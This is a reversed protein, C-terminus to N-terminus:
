RCLTDGKPCKFRVHIHDDHGKAWRIIGTRVRRKAPYQFIRDLEGKDVGTSLAHKYLERQITWDMFIFEIQQTDLLARVFEWSREVDVTKSNVKIFHHGNDRRKAYYSLDVDRGTRHSLHKYLQGALRGSFDGVVVNGIDPNRRRMECISRLMLNFAFPRGYSARSRKIFYGDQTKLKSWDKLYPRIRVLDKPEGIRILVRKGPHMLKRLRRPNRYVHNLRELSKLSKKYKRAIGYLTDGRRIKHYINVSGKPKKPQMVFADLYGACAAGDDTFGFAALNGLDPLEEPMHDDGHGNSGNTGNSGNSGNEAINPDSAKDTVASDTGASNTAANVDAPSAVDHGVETDYAYDGKEAAQALAQRVEAQRDVKQDTKPTKTTKPTPATAEATEKWAKDANDSVSPKVATSGSASTKVTSASKKSVKKKASKKKPTKKKPCRKATKILLRDGPHLSDAKRGNLRQLYDVDVKFKKAIVWLNDGSKVKYITPKGCRRSSNKSVKKTKKKPCSKATKILLRDGPHLSDAKSGNLRQLYDVTVGFRKAIVWLNDGSKVKYITPRGCSSTVKRTAAVADTIGVPTIEFAALGLLAAFVFMIYRRYRSSCGM